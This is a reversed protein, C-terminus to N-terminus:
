SKGVFDGSFIQKVLSIVIRQSGISVSNSQLITRSVDSFMSKCVFSAFRVEDVRWRESAHLVLM